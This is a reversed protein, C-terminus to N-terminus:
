WVEKQNYQRANYISAGEGSETASWFIEIVRDLYKESKICLMFSGFKSCTVWISIGQFGNM